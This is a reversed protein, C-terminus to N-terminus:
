WSPVKLIWVLPEGLWKIVAKNAERYCQSFNCLVFEKVLNFVDELIIQLCWPLNLQQSKLVAISDKSDIEVCSQTPLGVQLALFLSWRTSAEALRSTSPYRNHDIKRALISVVQM